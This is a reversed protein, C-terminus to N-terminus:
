IARVEIQECHGATVGYSIDGIRADQDIAMAGTSPDGPGPWAWSQRHRLRVVHGLKPLEAIRDAEIQVTWPERPLSAEGNLTGQSRALEGRTLARLTAGEQAERFSMAKTANLYGRAQLSRDSASEILQKDGEGSGVGIVEAAYDSADEGGGIFRANGQRTLPEGAELLITSTRTLEPAAVRIVREVGALDPGNWTPVTEVYWEIGGEAKCVERIIDGYQASYIERDMEYNWTTTFGPITIAAGQFAYTLAYHLHGGANTTLKRTRDWALFDPYTSWPIGDIPVQSSGTDLDGRGVVIWEGLVRKTADIENGNRDQQVGTAVISRFWPQTWNLRRRIAPYDPSAHNRTTLNLDLQGRFRGKTSPSLAESMTATTFGVEGAVEGSLANLAWFRVRM